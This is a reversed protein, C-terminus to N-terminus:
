GIPDAKDPDALSGVRAREEFPVPGTQRSRGDTHAWIRRFWSPLAERSQGPAPVGRLISETLQRFNRAIETRPAALVLPTGENISSVVTPYDNPTRWFVPVGLAERAQKLSVEEQATARTVVPKVKPQDIGLHRFAALGAAAVRVAAVNLGVLYLIQDSDELAAVTGSDVDNPLDLVVHAFHTRVVELGDHIQEPSFWSREIEAPAALVNLGSSHQALLSRLFSEDLRETQVFADVVSYTPRLNLFTSVGGQHLDLDILIVNGPSEQALCVALNTALTTVGLGGKTAYVSIIQGPHGDNAPVAKRLRMMKTIAAALDDRSIPRPLFEVAGARVARIVLDASGGPGSAMVSVGPITKLLQAICELAAAEGSGEPVEVIAVDIGGKAPPLAESPERLEGVVLVQEMGELDQRLQRRSTAESDIVLVRLPM